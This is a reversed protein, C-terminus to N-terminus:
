ASVKKKTKLNPQRLQLVTSSFAGEYISLPAPSPVGLFMFSAQLKLAGSYLFLVILNLNKLNTSLGLGLPRHIKAASVLSAKAEGGWTAGSILM